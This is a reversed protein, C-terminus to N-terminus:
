LSFQALEDESCDIILKGGNGAVLDDIQQLYAATGISALSFRIGPKIMGVLGLVEARTLSRRLIKFPLTVERTPSKLVIRVYENMRRETAALQARLSRNSLWGFLAFLAGGIGILDSATGLDM